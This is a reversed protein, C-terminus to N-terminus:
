EKIEQWKLREDLEDVREVLTTDNALLESLNGVASNFNSISIYTNTFNSVTEV